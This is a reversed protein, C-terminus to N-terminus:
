GHSADATKATVVGDQEMATCEDFLKVADVDDWKMDHAEHGDYEATYLQKSIDMKYMHAINKDEDVTKSRQEQAGCKVNKGNELM